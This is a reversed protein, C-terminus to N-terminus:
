RQEGGLVADAVALAAEAKEARARMDDWEDVVTRERSEREAEAKEAEDRHSTFDSM